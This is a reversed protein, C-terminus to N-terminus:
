LTVEGAAGAALVPVAAVSVAPALVVAGVAEERGEADVSVRFAMLM